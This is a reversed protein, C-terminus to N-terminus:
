RGLVERWSDIEDEADQPCWRHSGYLLPDTSTPLGHSPASPAFPEAPYIVEADVVIPAPDAVYDSWPRVMVVASTDLNGGWRLWRLAATM